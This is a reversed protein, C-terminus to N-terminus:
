GGEIDFQLRRLRSQSIQWRGDVRQYEDYYHGAGRFSRVGQVHDIMKWIGWASDPGTLEIEPTHGLHVTIASALGQRATSVIVDRGRLIGSERPMGLAVVDDTIDLVADPTFVETLADWQKLDLFRFYRARLKKIEDIAVLRDFESVGPYPLRFEARRSCSCSKPTTGAAASTGLRSLSTQALRRAGEVGLLLGMELLRFPVGLIGGDILDERM